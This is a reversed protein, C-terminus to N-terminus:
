RVGGEKAWRAAIMGSVTARMRISGDNLICADPQDWNGDMVVWYRMSRADAPCDGFSAGRPVTSMLAVTWVLAIALITLTLKM